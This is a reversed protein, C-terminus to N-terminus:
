HVTIAYGFNISREIGIYDDDRVERKINEIEYSGDLDRQFDDLDEFRISGDPMIYGISGNALALVRKNSGNKKVYVYKNEECSLKTRPSFGQVGEKVTNTNISMSGFPGVKRTYNDTGQDKSGSQQIKM